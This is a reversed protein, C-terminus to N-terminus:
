SADEGSGQRNALVGDLASRSVVIRRGLRIVPVPLADRKALDYATSRSVGLRRAMEELTLTARENPANQSNM